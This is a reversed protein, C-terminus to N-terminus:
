IEDTSVVKGSPGVVSLGYKRLTKFVPRLEEIADLLKFTTDADVNEIATEPQAHGNAPTKRRRKHKNATTKTKNKKVREGLLDKAKYFELGTGFEEKVAKQVQSASPRDKQEAIWQKAFDIKKITEPEM